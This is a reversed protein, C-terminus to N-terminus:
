IGRFTESPLKGYRKQYYNSFKSLHMFGCELAIDTVSGGDQAQLRKHVLDLRCDRLYNMPTTGRHKKFLLQLTRASCQSINILDDLVIIDTLHAYIYEEVKRLCHPSLYKKENAIHDSYSHPFEYLLLSMLSSEIQQSVKINNFGSDGKSLDECITKILCVFSAFAGTIPRSGPLFELPRTISMCTQESLMRRINEGNIQVILMELEASMHDKLPSTPNLVCVTDSVTSYSNKGQTVESNGKLTFKVLYNDLLKDPANITIEKGYSLANVSFDGLEIRNHLFHFDSTKDHFQIRHPRFLRSLHQCANDPNRTDLTEWLTLARTCEYLGM